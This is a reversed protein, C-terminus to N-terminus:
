IGKMLEIDVDETIPSAGIKVLVRVPQASHLRFFILTCAEREGDQIM